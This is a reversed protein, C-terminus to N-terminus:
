ELTVCAGVTTGERANDWQDYGLAATFAADGGAYNSKITAVAMGATTAATKVKFAKTLFGAKSSASSALYDSVTGDIVSDTNTISGAKQYLNPNSGVTTNGSVISNYINVTQGATETTVAGDYTGSSASNGTFTCSYIQATCTLSASGYLDIASGYSASSNGHFTSNALYLTVGNTGASYSRLYIAGGRGTSSNGRFESNTIKVNLSTANNNLIYM